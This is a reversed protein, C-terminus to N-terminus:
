LRRLVTRSGDVALASQFISLIAEKKQDLREVPGHVSVALRRASLSITRPLLIGIMGGGAVVTHQSFVYGDDRIQKVRRMLTPLHIRKERDGVKYNMRRVLHEIEDDSKASLLLWGLGCRALSRTTKPPDNESAPLSSHIVHIYQAYLDSQAGLCISEATSEHLSRMLSVIGTNLFRAPEIWSVVEPMRMTPMYIRTERDYDLFGLAVMSKLIGAASSAPYHLREMIEKLMLGRQVEAFIEFVELVRRVSKVTM